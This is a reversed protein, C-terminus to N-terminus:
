YSYITSDAKIWGVHKFTTIKKITGDSEKIEKSERKSFAYVPIINQRYLERELIPMFYPAGGILAYEAGHQMVIRTLEVAREVMEEYTPIEEFTLRSCVVDNPVANRRFVENGQVQDETLSHQTLNFLKM